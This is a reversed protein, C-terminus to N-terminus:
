LKEVILISEGITDVVQISEGTAIAQNAASKADYIKLGGQVSVQVQGTGGKPIQLYVTGTQGIANQSRLTGDSQLRIFFTFVLSLMWVSFLGIASSGIASLFDSVNSSLLALGSLGFMMFFATIGQLSLLKFSFDTDGVEADFDSDIGDADVGDIDGAIFFLATRFVFLTGGLIASVWYVIEIFRLGEFVAM